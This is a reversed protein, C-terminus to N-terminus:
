RYIIVLGPKCFALEGDVVDVRWRAKAQGNVSVTWSTLNDLDSWGAVSLGTKNVAQMAGDFNLVSLTGNALVNANLVSGAGAAADVVVANVGQGGTVATFDVTAAADARVGVAPPMNTVGATVYGSLKFKRTPHTRDGGDFWRIDTYQEGSSAVSWQDERVDATTWNVGDDSVEFEWDRPRYCETRLDYDTIPQSGTPLHYAFKVWSSEDEPDIVPTALIPRDDNAHAFIKWLSMLWSKTTNYTVDCQWACTGAALDSPATKDTANATAGIVAAGDLGWLYLGALILTKPKDALKANDRMAKFTWRHYPKDLGERSFVIRGGAAHVLGALESPDYVYMDGAGSKEIGNPFCPNFVSCNAAYAISGGNTCVIAGGNNVFAPPMAFACGDVLLTANKELTLSAVSAEASLVRVTGSVVELSPVTSAELNLTGEGCMRVTAGPGEVAGSLANTSSAAPAFALVGGAKSSKLVCGAAIRTTCATVTNGNLDFYPGSNGGVVLQKVNPGIAVPGTVKICVNSTSLSGTHGFTVNGIQLCRLNTDNYFVVDCEGRTRVTAEAATLKSPYTEANFGTGGGGADIRIRQNVTGELVFEGEQFLTAGWDSGTVIWADGGSRQYRIRAPKGSQNVLGGKGASYNYQAVNLFDVYDSGPTLPANAHIVLKKVVYSSYWGGMDLLGSCGNEGIVVQNTVTLSSYAGSVRITAPTTATGGINLTGTKSAGGNAVTLSGAVNLTTVTSNAPLTKQEGAAVDFTDYTEALLTLAAGVTVAAVLLRGGTM